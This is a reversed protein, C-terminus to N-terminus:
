RVRKAPCGVYVGPELLDSVVTAGAGVLIRSGICISDRVTSGAGLFVFDGIRCRGAVVAGPGVHCHDGIQTEHEVIAGTNVITNCGIKAQPGIHCFHAIFVHANVEAFRSIHATPAFIQVCQFNARLLDWMRQRKQNDGIAVFCSGMEEPPHSQVPFGLIM